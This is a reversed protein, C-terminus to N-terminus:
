ETEAGIVDLRYVEDPKHSLGPLILFVQPGNGDTIVLDHGAEVIRALSKAAVRANERHNEATLAEGCRLLVNGGLAAVFLM